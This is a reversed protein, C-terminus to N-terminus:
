WPADAPDDWAPQAGADVLSRYRQLQEPSERLTEMISKNLETACDRMAEAGTKLNGFILDEVVILLQMEREGSVFPSVHNPVAHEMAERFELHYDEAPFAPNHLFHEEHPPYHYAVVPALADAEENVLRNFTESHMFEIFQLAGEINRGAKNVLTARATGYVEPVRGKPLQVATLELDKYAKDRMICLWWRGGPAMAGMGSAFMSISKETGFGGQSALNMAANRDPSVRHKHIFDQYFQMAEAAEPSDLMCRTGADNYMRAGFQPLFIDRWDQHDLVLGFHKIRGDPRYQTLRKAIAICEDWTWDDAPLPIHNERFIKKNIWMVPAHVNAPHGYIRGDCEITTRSVPWFSEASIGRSAFADTLDLAMGARVFIYLQTPTWADMLDPGVGAICQVATKAITTPQPDVIVRYTDQMENFVAIQRRCVPNDSTCWILEIREDPYSPKWLTALVSAAALLGGIVAFIFKM